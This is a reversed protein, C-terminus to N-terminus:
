PFLIGQERVEENQGHSLDWAPSESVSSSHKTSAGDSVVFDCDESNESTTNKSTSESSSEDTIFPDESYDSWSLTTFLENKQHMAM